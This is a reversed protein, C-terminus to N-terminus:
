RKMVEHRYVLTPKLVMECGVSEKFDCLGLSPVGNESSPGVDVTLGKQRYYRAVQYALMNMPRLHSYGPCDGWYILQVVGTAVHYVLAAAVDVGETTLLMCDIDIIESTRIVEELSMRLDYGRHRRNDHIVKYCREIRERDASPHVELGFDHRMAIRLKNRSKPPLKDMDGCGGYSPFYYDYDSCVLQFGCTLLAGQQKTVNSCRNYIDPPLTLRIGRGISYAYQVLADAADLYFELRQMGREEFGGFPASFPSKLDEGDDGLIIGLRPKRKEDMFVLYLVEICKHSNLQNFEVSNYRHSPAPFLERYENPTVRQIEIAAM